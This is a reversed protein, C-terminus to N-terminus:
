FKKYGNYMIGKIGIDTSLMIEAVEFILQFFNRSIIEILKTGTTKNKENKPVLNFLLFKYSIPARITIM